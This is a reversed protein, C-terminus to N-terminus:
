SFGAARRMLPMEGTLGEARPPRRQRWLRRSSVAPKPKPLSALLAQSAHHELVEPLDSRFEPPNMLIWDAIDGKPPVAPWIAAIDVIRIEAAHAEHALAAVHNAYNTGQEDADPVIVVCRGALPAWDSHHANSAGGISTTAILGLSAVAEACKEGEVVYVTGHAALLMPLRFLPRPAPMGKALWRGDSSLSAQRFTKGTAGGSFRAVAGIVRGAADHYLWTASPTGSRSKLAETWTAFSRPSPAMPTRQRAAPIRTCPPGSPSWHSSDSFLDGPSLGLSAAVDTFRCGAHCHILVRGDQGCAISLSPTRDDHAPCRSSWGTRSKRPEIGRSRLRSLVETLPDVM